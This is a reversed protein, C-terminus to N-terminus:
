EATGSRAHAALGRPLGTVNPLATRAWVAVRKGAYCACLATVGVLGLLSFAVSFLLLTALLESASYFNLGVGLVMVAMGCAFDNAKLAIL